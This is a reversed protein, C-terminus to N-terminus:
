KNKKAKLELYEIEERDYCSPILFAPNLMYHGRKERVLLNKGILRQVGRRFKRKEPETLKSMDPVVHCSTYYTWDNQNLYLTAPELVLYAFWEAPSFKSMVETAWIPQLKMDKYGRGNSHKVYAPCKGQAVLRGEFKYGLPIKYSHQTISAIDEM